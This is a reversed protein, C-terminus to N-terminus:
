RTSIILKIPTSDFDSKLFYLGSALSQVEIRHLVEGQLSNYRKVIRGDSSFLDISYMGKKPFYVQVFEKAPNPYCNWSKELPLETSEQGTITNKIGLTYEGLILSDLTITGAKDNPNGMNRTYSAAESWNVGPGSRYYLIISDEIGTLWTHDLYQSGSASASRGDYNFTAKSLFGSPMFGEIKWYRSNSLTVTTNQLLFSDPAVLNHTAFIFATDPANQVNMSFFVGSFTTVGNSYIQHEQDVTADMTKENPDLLALEPNFSLIFVSTDKEGSWGMIKSIRNGSQDAFVVELKNESYFHPAGKLKQRGYVSVQFQGAAINQSVFSDISFHPYGPNFVWGSFFSDLPIGSYASLFDRLDASSVASFANTVLFSKIGSLFLSDGLYYRLTQVIDAGKKYTTEGYTNSQPMGSLPLFGGDTIHAFQIANKHNDHAYARGANVGYLKETFFSECFTAFGENLWMDEATSCTALDGFWHHSFEHAALWEYQTTNNIAARPYAINTAHEMAGGNFPVAVFGVREWMYPGFGEEFIAFTTDLNIFSNRANNTDAPLVYIAVPIQGNMGNFTDRVATYGAVAVSALYTPISSSLNWHFTKYGAVSTDISVLTGNCVATKSDYVTIYFDFDARDTFIDLCPFWARGFCHPIASLGVGLNFAYASDSSFYFGGFGGPDQVPVGQYYVSLILTDSPGSSPISVTLISNNNTFALPNGNLKVSDVQFNELDFELVSTNTQNPICTIEATGSLWQQAYHSFELSLSYHLIDCYVAAQVNNLAIESSNYSGFQTFPLRYSQSQVEKWFFALFLLFTFFPFKLPLKIKM